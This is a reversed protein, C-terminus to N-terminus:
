PIGEFTYESRPDFLWGLQQETLEENSPDYGKGRLWKNVDSSTPISTINKNPVGFSYEDGSIKQNIGLVEGLDKSIIEDGGLGQRGNKPKIFWGSTMKETPKHYIDANGFFPVWSGKTAWGEARDGSRTGTGTRMYFPRLGSKTKVLTVYQGTNVVYLIENIVMNGDNGITGYVSGKPHLSARNKIPTIDGDLKAKEKPWIVDNYYSDVVNKRLNGDRPLYKWIPNSTNKYFTTPDLNNDVIDEVIEIVGKMQSETYGLNKAWYDSNTKLNDLINKLNVESPKLTKPIQILTNNKTGVSKTFSDLDGLAKLPRRQENIPTNEEVLNGHLREETMLSKMRKIQENLNEM